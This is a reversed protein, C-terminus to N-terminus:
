RTSARASPRELKPFDVRLRIDGIPRGLDAPIINIVENTGPTFRRIRLDRDLMVIPINASAVLNALDDHAETLEQNRQQLEKNVTSLEENISQLEEKATELEENISQLEENSSQIEEYASRLEENANEKEQIVSQLHERTTELEARM